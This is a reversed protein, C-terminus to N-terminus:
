LEEGGRRIMRLYILTILLLLITMIVGIAAGLGYLSAAFAQQYAYVNLVQNQNAVGGGNTMIYIQAFLKFDWIISQIVVIMMIPRLIPLMILRAIQPMTAGDLRAAEIVETPIAQIGAYITVMVFPFSCWVVESAVLGFASLKDYTWSYGAFQSLGMGVLTRNVLGVTPEFLFLWVASGTVAPTAWAGMSVVFLVNRVWPRLNTALVALCGGVLITVVVLVGAFVVTNALVSWFQPDNFLQQYNGLGLFELPANGSVQAQRYDYMSINILQYIPYGLLGLMVLFAPTLYMWPELPRSRLGSRGAPRKGQQVPLTPTATTM